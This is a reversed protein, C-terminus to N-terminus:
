DNRAHRRRQQDSSSLQSQQLLALFRSDRTLAALDPQRRLDRLRERSANALLPFAEERRDLAELTMLAWFLVSYDAPALRAAQLAEDGALAPTGLRVMAYALRARSVADRPNRLLAARALRSAREFHARAEGPRGTGRLANGLNLRLGGDDAGASLARQLVQVAEGDRRQYRLLVSLNNLAARTEKLQLSRRLAQEAEAEKETALLAGGLSAYGEPLAPALETVTRFEAVAEAYRGFRFHVGGLDLHPGYHGPALHVARRLAATAESDRGMRLFAIGSRRWAEPNHPELEAARRFIEIAREPRGEAEEISGKILLVPPSDPHLADARQAHASAEKLWRAERTASFKRFFAEALGGHILPSGGDAQRAQEFSVIAEDPAPPIRRLSALGAAYHPYAPPRIGAPPARDLRFASTVVGALATSLSAVDRAQFEAAFDRVTEGSRLDAVAARVAFGGGRTAVSGSLVHTAGLRSAAASPSDVGYRMSEQMPILVLRRSSAGVSELRAAVDYLGGTVAEALTRDPLSGTFPLVALRALPPPWIRDRWLAMPSLVLVAAAAAILLRNRRSRLFAQEIAELLDGASSFRKAPDPHLCRLVIADWRPDPKRESRSPPDPLESLRTRWSAGRPFPLNGALMEYLIVGLSYIDSARAAEAGKWQEPAIYGPTGSISAREGAGLALALGFDTIVVRLAGSADRALMVNNSKLDRHLV